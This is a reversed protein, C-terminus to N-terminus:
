SCRGKQGLRKATVSGGPLNAEKATRKRTEERKAKRAAKAAKEDNFYEKEAFLLATGTLRRDRAARGFCQWLAALNCTARWQIVMMIDPIDMGMGFSTTTCLGWTEGSILKELEEEKYTESMDANFWRIKERLESPLRRRLVCAANISDPIDDFFILFKPPPPDDARFGPLILFTLDAFSNLAYKIKIVGIKINPRDSSQRVTVIRSPCMHLLHTIDRLMATTITVSTVLLPVSRPLVYHLQGLERYEPRFEGWDTLCHAEDIVISIIRSIFLPNKLLKEFGGEPRMIQEPSIVIVRYQFAGIAQFNAPSAMESSISIAQIGAKALSAVNQQGLLNLPTVVIQIGDPRFLLPMWFTLTKGMGTGAICIVDKEGKLITEAVRLQWLCPRVGFVQQTHIRINSLSPLARPSPNSAPSPVM